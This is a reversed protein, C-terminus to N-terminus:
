KSTKRRTSSASAGVAGVAAEANDINSHHQSYEGKPM